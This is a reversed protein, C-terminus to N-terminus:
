SMQPFKRNHRTDYYVKTRVIEVTMEDESFLTDLCARSLQLMFVCLQTRKASYNRILLLTRVLVNDMTTSSSCLNDKWLQLSKRKIKEKPHTGNWINNSISSKNRQCFNTITWQRFILFFFTFILKFNSRTQRAKKRRQSFTKMQRLLQIKLIWAVSWKQKAFKWQEQTM